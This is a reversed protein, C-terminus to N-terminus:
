KSLGWKLVTNKEILIITMRNIIYGLFGIILLSLIMKEIDYFKRSAFVLYGLGWSTSGLMEAGVLARWSYAIGLKMGVLINNFSAPLSIKYFLEFKNYGLTKGVKILNYDINEFGELTNYLMTFYSGLFITIIITQESIGTIILLLPVWTITPISIIFSILPKFAYSIYKSLNLVIASLIGLLVASVYGSFMRLLSKIIHFFIDNSFVKFIISYTILCIIIILFGIVRRNRM